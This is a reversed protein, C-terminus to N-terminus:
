IFNSLKGDSYLSSEPYKIPHIPKDPNNVGSNAILVHRVFDYLSLKNIKALEKLEKINVLEREYDNIFREANNLKVKTQSLESQILRIKNQKDNLQQEFLDEANSYYGQSSALQDKLDNENDLMENYELQITNLANLQSTYTENLENFDITSNDLQMQVNNISSNLTLAELEFDGIQSEYDNREQLWGNQANLLELEAILTLNEQETLQQTFLEQQQNYLTTISQNMQTIITNSNELENFEDQLGNFNQKESELEISAENIQNELLDIESNKSQIQSQLQNSLLQYELSEDQYLIVNADAIEKEALLLNYEDVKDNFSITIDSLQQELNIISTNKIALQNEILVINSELDEVSDELEQENQELNAIQSNLGVKEVGWNTTALDFAETVDNVDSQYVGDDGELLGRQYESVALDSAEYLDDELTLIKSDKISLDSIYGQEDIDWENQKSTITENLSDINGELISKEVGWANSQELYLDDDDQKELELASYEEVLGGVGDDQMDDGYLVIREANREAIATNYNDLTTTQLSQLNNKEQLLLDNNATLQQNNYELNTITAERQSALNTYYSVDVNLLSVQNVYDEVEIEKQDISELLLENSESLQTIELTKGDIINILGSNDNELTTINESIINIENQKTEIEDLLELNNNSITNNNSILEVIESQKTALDSLLGINAESITNNDSILNEVEVQKSTIQAILDTIQEDNIDENSQLELIEQALQSIESNLNDIVILDNDSNQMLTSIESQLSLIEAQAVEVESILEAINNNLSDINSTDVDDDSEQSKKYGMYLLAVAGLGLIINVKKM